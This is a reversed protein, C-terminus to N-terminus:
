ATEPSGPRSARRPRQGKGRRRHLAFARLARQVRALIVARTGRAPRISRPLRNRNWCAPRTKRRPNTATWCAAYASSTLTSNSRDTGTSSPKTATPWTPRTRSSVCCTSRASDPTLARSAGTAASRKRTASRRRRSGPAGQFPLVRTGRSRQLTGSRTRPSRSAVAAGNEAPRAEHLHPGPQDPGAASRQGARAGRQVGPNGRLPSGKFRTCRWPQCVCGRKDPRHRDGRRFRDIAQNYDGQKQYCVGLGIQADFSKPQLEVAHLYAQIAKAVRETLTYLQALNLTDDFSFPDRRVAQVFSDIALEYDGLQRYISGMRSHPAALKPSIAAARQFAKLAAEYDDQASLRDGRDVQLEARYDRVAACGSISVFTLIPLITPRVAVVVRQRLRFVNKRPQM